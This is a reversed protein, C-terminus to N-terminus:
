DMPHCPPKGYLCLTHINTRHKLPIPLTHCDEQRFISSNQGVRQGKHGIVVVFLHADRWHKIHPTVIHGDRWRSFHPKFLWQAVPLTWRKLWQQSRHCILSTERQLDSHGTVLSYTLITCYVRWCQNIENFKKLTSGQPIEEPKIVICM